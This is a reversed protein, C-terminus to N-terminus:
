ISSQYNIMIDMKNNEITLTFSSLIDDDLIIQIFLLM